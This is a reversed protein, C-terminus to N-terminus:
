VLRVALRFLLLVVRSTQRESCKEMCQQWPRRVIGSQLVWDSLRQLGGAQYVESAPQGSVHRADKLEEATSENLVVSVGEPSLDFFFSKM